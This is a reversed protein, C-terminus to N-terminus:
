GVVPRSGRVSPLAEGQISLALRAKRIEIRSVTGSLPALTSSEPQMDLFGDVGSLAPSDHHCPVSLRRRDQDTDPTSVPFRNYQLGTRSEPLHNLSPAGLGCEPDLLHLPFEPPSEGDPGAAEWAPDALTKRLRHPVRSRNGQSMWPISIMVRSFRTRAGSGILTTSDRFFWPSEIPAPPPLRVGVLLLGRWIKLRTRRGIGGSRCRHIAM